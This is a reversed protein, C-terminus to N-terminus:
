VVTFTTDKADLLKSIEEAVSKVTNDDMTAAAVRQKFKICELDDLGYKSKIMDDTGTSMLMQTILLQLATKFMNIDRQCTKNWLYQMMAEIEPKDLMHSLSVIIKEDKM